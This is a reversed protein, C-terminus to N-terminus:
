AVFQTRCSPCRFNNNLLLNSYCIKCLCHSCNLNIRQNSNDNYSLYCVPCENHTSNINKKTYEFYFENKISVINSDFTNKFACNLYYKSKEYTFYKDVSKIILCTLIDELNGFFSILTDEKLKYIYNHYITNHMVINGFLDRSFKIHIQKDNDTKNCIYFQVNLINDSNISHTDFLELLIEKLDYTFDVM